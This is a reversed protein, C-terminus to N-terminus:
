AQGASSSSLEQQLSSLFLEQLRFFNEREDSTLRQLANSEAQMLTRIHRDCFAKGKPTLMIDKQKRSGKAYTMSLLGAKELNAVATNVTQKSYCWNECFTNQCLTCYERECLAYLVWFQTDTIGAQKACQHYIEDQQKSLKNLRSLETNM